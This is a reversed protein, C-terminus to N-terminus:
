HRTLTKAGQKYYIQIYVRISSPKFILLRM